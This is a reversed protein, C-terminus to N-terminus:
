AARCFAFGQGWFGFCCQHLPGAAFVAVVYVYTCFEHMTHLATVRLFLSGTGTEAALQANARLIARAAQCASPSVQCWRRNESDLSLTIPTQM